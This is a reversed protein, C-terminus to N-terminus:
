EQYAGGNNINNSSNSRSRPPSNGSNINNNPRPPSSYHYFNSAWREYEDYDVSSAHSIMGQSYYSDVSPKRQFSGNSPHGIPNMYPNPSGLHIPTGQHVPPLNFDSTYPGQQSSSFSHASPRRQQSEEGWESEEEEEITSTLAALNKLSKRRMLEGEIITRSNLKGYNGIDLRRFADFTAKVDEETIRGLRVLMALSFM